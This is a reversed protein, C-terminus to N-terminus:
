KSSMTMFEHHLADNLVAPVYNYITFTSNDQSVKTALLDAPKNSCGDINWKKLNQIGTGSKEFIITCELASKEEHFWIWMINAYCHNSIQVGRRFSLINSQLIQFRWM